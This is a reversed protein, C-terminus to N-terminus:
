VTPKPEFFFLKLFPMLKEVLALLRDIRSGETLSGGAGSEVFRPREAKVMQEIQDLETCISGKCAALKTPNGVTPHVYATILEGIGLAIAGLDSVVDDLKSTEGQILMTLDSRFRSLIVGFEEMTTEMVPPAEPKKPTAM